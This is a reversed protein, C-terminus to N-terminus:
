IQDEPTIIPGPLTSAWDKAWRKAQKESLGRLLHGVEHSCVRRV